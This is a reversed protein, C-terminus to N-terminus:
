ILFVGLEVLKECLMRLYLSVTCVLTFKFYTFKWMLSKLYSFSKGYNNQARVRKNRLFIWNDETPWRKHFIDRKSLDFALSSILIYYIYLVAAAREHIWFLSRMHLMSGTMNSSLYVHNTVSIRFYVFVDSYLPVFRWSRWSCAFWCRTRRKYQATEEKCVKNYQEPLGNNLIRQM